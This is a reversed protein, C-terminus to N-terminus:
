SLIPCFSSILFSMFILCSFTIITSVSAIQSFLLSEASTPPQSGHYYDDFNFEVDDPPTSRSSPPISNRSREARPYYYTVRRDIDAETYPPTPAPHRRAMRRLDRIHGRQIERRREEVATFDRSEPVPPMWPGDIEINLPNRREIRHLRMRESHVRMRNMRAIDSADPSIDPEVPPSVHEPEEVDEDRSNTSPINHADLANELAILRRRRSEYGSRARNGRITRQRRIASRPM